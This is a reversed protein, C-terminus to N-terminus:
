TISVIGSIGATSGSTFLTRGSSKLVGPIFILAASVFLLAIPQGITVQTPADKHAKFKVVAAVGFAFGAVYSGATILQAIAAFNGRVTTAVSGIGQGSVAFAAGGLCFCFLSVGLLILAKRSKSSLM